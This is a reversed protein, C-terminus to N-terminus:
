RMVCFIGGESSIRIWKAGECDVELQDVAVDVGRRLVTEKMCIRVLTRVVEFRPLPLPRLTAGFSHRILGLGEEGTRRVCCKRPEM